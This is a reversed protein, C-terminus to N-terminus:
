AFIRKDHEKEIIAVKANLWAAISAATMGGPGGGIVVLDYIEKPHPNKWDAPFVNNMRKKNYADLPFEPHQTM